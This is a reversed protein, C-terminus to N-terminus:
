WAFQTTLLFSRQRQRETWTVNAVVNKANTLNTVTVFITENNLNTFNFDSYGSLNEYSVNKLKELVYQADNTAISKSNTAENLLHANIFAALLGTIAITLIGATVMLESLTFGNKLRFSKRINKIRVSQM